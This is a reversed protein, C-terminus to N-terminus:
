FSLLMNDCVCACTYSALTINAVEPLRTGDAVDTGMDCWNNFIKFVLGGFLCVFLFVYCLSLSYLFIFM